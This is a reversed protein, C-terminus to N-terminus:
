PSAPGAHCVQNRGSEKATYLAADARRLLAGLSTEGRDLTAVGISVTIAVKVGPELVLQRDAISQRLREAVGLAAEGDTGPMLVAFEEGGLRGLIDIRRVTDKCVAGLEKLVRDGVAHGHTDNVKKFFDIDLVLASLPDGHRAARALEVEGQEVFARRNNLGTLFDLHAQRHLEIEQERMHDFLRRLGLVGYLMLISIALGVLSNFMDVQHGAYLYWLEMLRRMVQLLLAASISIWALRFRGALRWRSVAISAAALQALISLIITALVPLQM